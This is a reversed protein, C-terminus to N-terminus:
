DAARSAFFVAVVVLVAGSLWLPATLGFGAGIGGGALAGLPGATMSLTRSAANVRGLVATPVVRQRMSTSLVNWVAFGFSVVSLTVAALVPTPWMALVLNSVAVVGLAMIQASRQGWRRTLRPTVVAGVIGGIAGVALIAGFGAASTGVLLVLLPEWMQTVFTLCAGTVIVLRVQRSRWLWRTGAVAEKLVVGPTAPKEAVQAPTRLRLVLILGAFMAFATLSFPLPAAVAFIVGGVAPGILDQGLREVSVLAGNARELSEVPVVRPIMSQSANDYAAEGIGLLFTVVYLLLLERVGLVLSVALVAFLVTRAIAAGFLYLEPRGRDVLAGIPLGFLMWPVYACATLGGVLVADHTIGAALLPLAVQRIGDGLNALGSAAVVRRYGRTTVSQTATM